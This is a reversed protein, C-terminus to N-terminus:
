ILICTNSDCRINVSKIQSTFMSLLKRIRYNTLNNWYKSQVCKMNDVYSTINELTNIQKSVGYAIAMSVSRNVGKECVLLLPGKSIHTNIINITQDCIYKFENYSISRSDTFNVKYTNLNAIQTMDCFHIITKGFRIFEDVSNINGIYLNPHIRPLNTMYINNNKRRSVNNHKAFNGSSVVTQKHNQTNTKRYNLCVAQPLINKEIYRKTTPEPLIDIIHHKKISQNLALNFIRHSKINTTPRSASLSISNGHKSRCENNLNGHPSRKKFKNNYKNLGNIKHNFDIVYDDNM